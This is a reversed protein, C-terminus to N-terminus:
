NQDHRAGAHCIGSFSPATGKNMDARDHLHHRSGRTDSVSARSICRRRRLPSRLTVDQRPSAYRGRQSRHRPVSTPLFGVFTPPRQM